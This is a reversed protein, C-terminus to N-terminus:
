PHADSMNTHFGHRASEKPMAVYNGEFHDATTDLAVLSGDDTIRFWQYNKQQLHTVIEKAPYGWQQTRIDQVEVLIVPRSRRLFLREAGNLVEIEGGEVDLKIFDIHDIQNKELWDDLRVVQIETSSLAGPVDPAPPRLSNCGTQFGQVVFLNGSGNTSGVALAEVTVNRCRNLAIHRSLAGRERPSPEFAFVKGPLGVIKSALLTYFGHHAGIDLVVMGPQLFRSVFAYESNEFEGRLIVNGTYDNRALWWAGFPLRVPVPIRPFLRLWRSAISRSKEDFPRQLFHVVHRAVLESRPPLKEWPDVPDRPEELSTLLSSHLPRASALLITRRRKHSTTELFDDHQPLTALRYVYSYGARYLMKTICGESPYFAVDTLSQNNCRPEERLQMWPSEDPLCMSELLLCTRTIIHLRRIGLLPNELHYLLGMCFVLDFSGAGRFSEDEINGQRFEIGPYRAIAESVNQERGDIGVVDFGLERLFASFHGVGCGVDAATQLSLDRRLAELLPRVAEQRARVIQLAEATDFVSRPLASM